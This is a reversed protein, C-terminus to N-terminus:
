DNGFIRVISKGDRRFLQIDAVTFRQSEPDYAEVEAGGDFTALLHIFESVTAPKRGPYETM